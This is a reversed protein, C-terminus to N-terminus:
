SLNIEIRTGAPDGAQNYKDTISYNVSRKKLKNYMGVIQEIIEHGKGTSDTDLRAAAVRGIGDDDVVIKLNGNEPTIDIFLRGKGEKNVLGHKVANETFTQIIMRPVEVSLDTEKGVRIEFNFADDHRFQQIKLYNRVFEVEEGLEIAINGSNRLTSRIVESLEVLFKHATKRDREFIVSSLTNIANFTFHPDIQNKITLLELETMYKEQEFKKQLNKRQIRFLTRFFLAILLFVALYVPYRFPYFPNRDYELFMLNGGWQLFLNAESDRFYCPTIYFEISKARFPLDLEVPHRLNQQLITIKQGHFDFAMLEPDGDRNVDEFIWQQVIGNIDKFEYSRVIRLNNDLFLLKRKQRDIFLHKWAGEAYVPKILCTEGAGLELEAIVEGDLSYKRLRNQHGPAYVMFYAIVSVTSDDNQVPYAHIGTKIKGKKFDVPSFHFNFASDFVMLWTYWDSYFVDSTDPVNQSASSHPVIVPGRFKDEAVCNEYLRVNAYSVDEKVLRNEDIYYAYLARPKECFGGKISFVIERSGDSNLDILFGPSLYFDPIGEKFCVRDIFRRFILKGEWLNAGALFLSDNQKLFIFAEDRNDDDYDGFFPYSGQFWELGPNVQSVHRYTNHPEFDTKLQLNPVKNDDLEFDLVVLDDTGDHDMDHFYRFHSCHSLSDVIRITHKDFLPPLALFIGITIVLALFLPHIILHRIKAM